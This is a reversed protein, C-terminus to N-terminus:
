GASRWEGAAGAFIRDLGNQISSLLAHLRGGLRRHGFALVTAARRPDTKGEYRSVLSVSRNSM